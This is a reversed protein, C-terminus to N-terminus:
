ATTMQNIYAPQLEKVCENIAYQLQKHDLYPVALQILKSDSLFLKLRMPSEYQYRDWLWYSNEELADVHSMFQVGCYLMNVKVAQFYASAQTADVQRRAYYDACFATAKPPYGLTDGLMKVYHPSTGDLGKTRKLFTEKLLETQFFLTFEPSELFWPYQLLKDKKEASLNAINEYCSPKYGQLFSAVGTLYM